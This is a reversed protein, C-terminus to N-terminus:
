LVFVLIVPIITLLCVKFHELDPRQLHVVHALQDELAGQIVTVNILITQTQINPKYYPRALKTHLILQFKPHFKCGKDGVRIYRCLCIFICLLLFYSYKKFLFGM